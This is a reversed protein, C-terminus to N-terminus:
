KDVGEKKKKEKEYFECKASGDYFQIPKNDFILCSGRRYDDILSDEIKMQRFMCTKCQEYKPIKTNDTLIENGYRDELSKKDM